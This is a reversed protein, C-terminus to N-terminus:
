QTGDYKGYIVELHLVMRVNKGPNRFMKNRFIAQVSRYLIICHNWLTPLLLGPFGSLAVPRYLSPRM